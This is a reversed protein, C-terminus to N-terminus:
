LQAKSSSLIGVPLRPFISKIYIDFFFSFSLVSIRLSGRDTDEKVLKNFNLLSPSNVSNWLQVM